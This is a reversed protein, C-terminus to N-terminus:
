SLEGLCHMVLACAVPAANEARLIRSGMSTAVFGAALAQDVEEDSFGAEPGVLVTARKTGSEIELQDLPRATKSPVFILNLGEADIERVFQQLSVPVSIEPRYSRRCQKMAALAVKELRTVKARARSADEMRVKSKECIIPVVRKVGLETGKEVIEDFKSATSLGAALTLRVAPEGFDRRRSHVRVRVTDKGGALIEGRCANGVGDVVMVIAAPKLRLVTLAHHSEARPLEIIDNLLQDPPTYFIPPEM